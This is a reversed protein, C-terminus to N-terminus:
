AVEIILKGKENGYKGMIVSGDEGYINFGTAYERAQEAFVLARPLEQFFDTDLHEQGNYIAVQMGM